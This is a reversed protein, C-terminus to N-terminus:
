IDIQDLQEWRLSFVVLEMCVSLFSLSRVILPLISLLKKSRLIQNQIHLNLAHGKQITNFVLRRKLFEENQKNLFEEVLIMKEVLFLSHGMAWGVLGIIPIYLVEKKMIPPVQFKTIILPIDIYSQHNAIYLRKQRFIMKSSMQATIKPSILKQQVYGDSPRTM